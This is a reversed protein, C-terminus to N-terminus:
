ESCGTQPKGDEGVTAIARSTRNAPVAAMVGGGPQPVEVIKPDDAAVAAAAAPAAGNEPVTLKGTAPDIAARLGGSNATDAAAHDCGAHSDAAAEGAGGCACAGPTANEGMSPCAAGCACAEKDGCSMAPPPVIAFTATLLAAGGLLFLMQRTSNM